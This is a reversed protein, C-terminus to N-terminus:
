LTQLLCGCNTSASSAGSTSSGMRRTSTVRQSTMPSTRRRYTVPVRSSYVLKMWIRRWCAFSTMLLRIFDDSFRTAEEVIDTFWKAYIEVARQMVSVDERLRQLQAKMAQENIKTEETM